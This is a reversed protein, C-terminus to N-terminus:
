YKKVFIKNKITYIIFHFPALISKGILMSSSSKYMTIIKNKQLITKILAEECSELEISSLLKSNSDSLLDIGEYIDKKIIKELLEWAYAAKPNNGMFQNGTLSDKRVTYNYLHENVTLGQYKKLIRYIWHIDEGVRATFYHNYGPCDNLVDKSIMMSPCCTAHFHNNRKNGFDIFEDRLDENSLAIPFATNVRDGYNKYATFCIGLERIELFQDVQKEIRTPESWDDADQFCIFDGNVKKLVDNVAGIKKTNQKSKVLSIRTDTFYAIKDLTDDTSGDDIIWIEINTYTQNIISQIARSVYPEVNYCPIIVSVLKADKTM